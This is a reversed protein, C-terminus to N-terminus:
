LVAFSHQESHMGSLSLAYEAGLLKRQATIRQTVCNRQAASDVHVELDVRPAAAASM